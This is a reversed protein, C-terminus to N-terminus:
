NNRLLRVSYGRSNNEGTGVGLSSSTASLRFISGVGEMSSSCWWIGTELQDKFSLGGTERYGGGMGAFGTLNTGAPTNWYEVGTKKLLTGANAGLYAQLIHTIDEERPLKWGDPMVKKAAVWNYLVGYSIKNNFAGSDAADKYDYVACGGKDEAVFGNTEWDQGQLNTIIPTRDPYTLTRLNEVTWYQKGIKVIRYVNGDVDTLTEPQLGDGFDPDRGKLSSDTYFESGDETYIYMTASQNGEQYGTGDHEITAGTNTILGRGYIGGTLYPYVVTASEGSEKQYERCLEGVKKGWLCVSYVYSGKFDPLIIKYLMSVTFSSRAIGEAADVSRLVVTGSLAGDAMEKQPAKLTLTSTKFDITAQWGKPVDVALQSEKLGKSSFTVVLSEGRSFFLLNRVDPIEISPKGLPIKFKTVGDALTFEVYELGKYEVKKFISVADKANALVKAGDVEIWTEPDAGIKQTWYYNDDGGDTVVWQKVGLQPTKGNHSDAIAKIRNGTSDTLYYAKETGVKVTWYYELDTPDQMISIMPNQGSEGQEGKNGDTGDVGDKGDTGDVGNEGDTGDIGDKGDEGDTGDTGDIGDKGDNGEQGAAGKKGNRITIPASKSFSIIYGTGDALEEIHTIYDGIKGTNVIVQLNFIDENVKKCLETLDQLEKKQNSQRDLLDNFDSEKCCLLLPILILLLYIKKRIMTRM